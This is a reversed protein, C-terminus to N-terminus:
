LTTEVQCSSLFTNERGVGAKVKKRYPNVHVEMAIPYYAIKHRVTSTEAMAAYM